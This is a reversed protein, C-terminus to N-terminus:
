VAGRGSGEGRGAWALVQARRPLATPSGEFEQKVLFYGNERTPETYLNALPLKPRAYSTSNKMKKLIKMKKMKKGGSASKRGLYHGWLGGAAWGLGAVGFKEWARSIEAAM